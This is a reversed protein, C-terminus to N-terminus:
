LVAMWGHAAMLTQVLQRRRSGSVIGRRNKLQERPAAYILDCRCLTPWDLGDEQDLLIEHAAPPQKARHTTCLLVEVWQKKEARSSHSVIVAPHAEPWGPPQWSFIEFQKM